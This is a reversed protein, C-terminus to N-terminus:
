PKSWSDPRPRRVVPWTPAALHLAVQCTRELWGAFRACTADNLAPWTSSPWTTTPTTSATVM